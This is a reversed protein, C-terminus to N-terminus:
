LVIFAPVMTGHASNWGVLSPGNKARNVEPWCNFLSAYQEATEVNCADSVCDALFAQRLLSETM